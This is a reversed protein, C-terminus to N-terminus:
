NSKVFTDFFLKWKCNESPERYSRNTGHWGRWEETTRIPFWTDGAFSECILTVYIKHAHPLFLRYIEAGGIVMVEFLQRGVAGAEPSNMAAALAENISHVVVCGPAKYAMDRTLIINTRKALKGISEFTKRGMIVPKDITLNRFRNGDVPKNGWPMKGNNGIVFNEGMAVILSIAM